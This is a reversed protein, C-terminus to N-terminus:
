KPIMEEMSGGYLSILRPHLRIHVESAVEMLDGDVNWPFCNESATEDEEEEPNYGGTNNRPHVKVEEVTYTEVFPFNFQNKVSAYRKLHKIFEPRSTNRAIILAMSGNNLRTNPALGRPAVSCLCPIAMISVNLFQGQIMQWQDNCDSKPSGQARREQVDDSSNFPLFSIECDEAKLKALAKVVAFDRRQNPSMWRYKEALALTRGGFGFMASFGFRLLKGATSFTCVDVLQVHGMIIHLTATIVHPVGHLSHALVNTSRTVDTKIGALKLLPEVKEYYVQTAEKKHSQPNLLIKLSKPRNPFGALIKKFQRFWIDCHDESLNILDLTSNKLKNQEKKLCIFLTIGLLTGSRQQKVSCRRKLKVSFIDKLEIFEEKCLLDYKSDGAPREPQIPRWRLARESLVVDCSDRGIEFIGRLLIREAAAETQQPSTLLAPPVAAAEPPAEEERGGELASVRNRRRRWPM